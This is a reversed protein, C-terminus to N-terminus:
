DPGLLVSCSPKVQITFDAISHSERKRTLAFNSKGYKTSNPLCAGSLVCILVTASEAVIGSPEYRFAVATSKQPSCHEKRYQTFRNRWGQL